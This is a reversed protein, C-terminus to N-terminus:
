SEDSVGEFLALFEEDIGKARLDKMEEENIMHVSKFRKNGCHTCYHFKHIKELFVLKACSDCRMVPDKFDAQNKAEYKNM